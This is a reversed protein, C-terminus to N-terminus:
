TSHLKFIPMDIGAGQLTDKVWQALTDPHAPMGAGTTTIFLQKTCRRMPKTAKLYFCLATYPCKEPCRAFRHITFEQCANYSDSYNKGLITLLFTFAEVSRTMRAISLRHAECKRRMTSLLILVLTKQSLEMLSLRSYHPWSALHDMVVNIDWVPSNIQPFSSNAKQTGKALDDIIKGKVLQVASPSLIHTLVSRMTAITTKRNKRLGLQSFFDTLDILSPNRIDTKRSTCFTKWLLTKGGYLQLMYASFRGLTYRITIESIGRNTLTTWVIKCFANKVIEEVPATHISPNWPLYPLNDGLLLIPAILLNLMRPFWLQTPWLPLVMTVTAQDRTIKTLCRRVLSFPPFAYYDTLM